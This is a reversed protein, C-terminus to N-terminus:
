RRRVAGEVASGAGQRPRSPLLLCAAVLSATSCGVAVVFALRYGATLAEAVPIHEALLTMTRTASVTALVAVGISAGLQVATNLLGSAAGSETPEVDSMAISVSPMFWLGVGAGNLLMTPLVDPVYLSHVTIRTISLLGATNLCLGAIVLSKASVRHLLWPAAVLSGFMTLLSSPVFALGTRLPSYRLVHQLYLSAIFNSGFGGMQFLLRVITSSVLGHHRFLTLPVLPTRVRGEVVVFTMVLVASGVLPGITLASRWGHIGANVLGFVALTPAGTVLVAGVVDAGARIGLGPQRAVLRSGLIAVAMGTPLNIFFIWHWNLLAIVVGGLVLGLTSGGIAVFAFFSLARIRQRPEPFTSSIIGLVMSGVMAASAGQLLRAGVLVGASPALGCLLSSATFAALGSLFVKRRGLLDGLRGAFLLLGGFTLLYANVVWALSAQSFHLDRQISPLAVNVVTSDLILMLQGTCLVVLAAWRRWGAPQGLGAM